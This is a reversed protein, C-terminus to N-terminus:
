HSCGIFTNHKPLDSAKLKTDSKYEQIQLDKYMDEPIGLLNQHKKSSDWWNMPYYEDYFDDYAKQLQSMITLIPMRGVGECLLPINVEEINEKKCTALIGKLVLYPNISSFDLIQPVRMTPAYILKNNDPLDVIINQGILLEKLDTNKIITQVKDQLEWGYKKIFELDLGGDMFGFSNGATVLIGKQNLLDGLIIDFNENKLYKKAELYKNKDLIVINVKM